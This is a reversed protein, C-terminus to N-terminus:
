STTSALDTISISLATPVDVIWDIWKIVYKGLHKWLSALPASIVARCTTQQLSQPAGHIFSHGNCHYRSSVRIQLGISRRKARKSWCAGVPAAPFQSTFSKRKRTLSTLSRASDTARFDSCRAAVRQLEVEFPRSCHIRVPSLSWPPKLNEIMSNSCPRKKGRKAKSKQGRKEESLRRKHYGYVWATAQGKGGKADTIAEPTIFLRPPRIDQQYGQTM